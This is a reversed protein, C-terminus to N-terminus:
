FLSTELTIPGKQGQYMSSVERIYQNRFYEDFLKTKLTHKLFKKYM